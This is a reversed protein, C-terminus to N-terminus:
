PLEPLALLEQGAHAVAFFPAFASPVLLTASPNGGVATSGAVVPADQLVLRPSGSGLVLIVEAREGAAAPASSPITVLVSPPGADKLAGAFIPEGPTLPVVLEKGAIAQPASLDPLRVPYTSLVYDHRTLRQGPFLARSAVPVTYRPSPSRVELLSVLLALVALLIAVLRLDLPFPFRM